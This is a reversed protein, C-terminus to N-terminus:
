KGDKTYTLITQEKRLEEGESDYFTVKVNLEKNPYDKIQPCEFIGTDKTLIKTEGQCIITQDQKVEYKVQCIIEKLVTMLPPPIKSIELIEMKDCSVKIGLQNGLILQYSALSLLFLGVFVIAVIVKLKQKM